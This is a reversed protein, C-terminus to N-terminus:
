DLYAITAEKCFGSRVIDEVSFEVVNVNPSDGMRRILEALGSEQNIFKQGLDGDVIVTANDGVRTIFNKMQKRTTNEAEDLLIWCDRLTRGQMYAFPVAEIKGHTLCYEAFTKGLRDNFVEVYPVLYPSIKEAVTGPLFGLKEDAEVLPRCIYIKNIRKERLMDAAIAAALFTKGTGPPGIGITCVYKLMSNMYERQRDNLARVPQIVRIEVPKEYEAIPQRRERKKAM